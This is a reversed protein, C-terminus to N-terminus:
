PLKIKQALITLYQSGNEMADKEDTAIDMIAKIERIYSQKMESTSLKNNGVLAIFPKNYKKCLLAMKGIVKGDLSQLDLQGEGSIVIQASQIKNELNSLEAVFDFGNKISADLLSVLGGAIGGAAGAGKISHVDIHYQMKIIKAINRLGDDLIIVDAPSAGKQPSYIYAAGNPGYMPNNVDCLITYKIRSKRSPSIIKKIRILNKGIPELIENEANLFRFGLAHAIGIGADNTASGGLLLVIHDAGHSIANLIINGTGFTSTYMPNRDAKDLLVMGSASALEIYATKDSTIYTTHIIRGLPDTTQVKIEKYPIYKKLIEITGDGGDAMPHSIIEFSNDVSVLGTAMAQCVAEASISGKFKDPAILINKIM